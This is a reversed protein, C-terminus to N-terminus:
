EYKNDILFSNPSKKYFNVIDNWRYNQPLKKIIKRINKLDESTDLTLRIYSLNKNYKLQYTSIKDNRKNKGNFYGTVHERLKSDNANLYAKELIKFSFIEADLGDAFTRDITNSCYDVKKKFYEKIIKDVIEPDIMPCDATLRLIHRANYNKAADYFRSLVDEEDGRYFDIGLYKCIKIIKNDSPNKSTAIIFKDINQIKTVRSIMYEIATVGDIKKLVKGPLRSSNMRAQIISLVEYM